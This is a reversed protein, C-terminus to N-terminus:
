AWKHFREIQDKSLLGGEFRSLGPGNENVIEHFRRKMSMASRGACVLTKKEMYNWLSSGMVRAYMEHKSIFEVIEYDEQSTYPVELTVYEKEHSPLVSPCKAAGLTDPVTPPPAYIGNTNTASLASGPAARVYTTQVAPTTRAPATSMPNLFNRPAAPVYTAQVASTTTSAPATKTQNPVNRPAAGHGAHVAPATSTPGPWTNKPVNGQRAPPEMISSRKEMLECIRSKTRKIDEEIRM